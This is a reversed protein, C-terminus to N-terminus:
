SKNTVKYHHSDALIVIEFGQGPLFPFTPCHREEQGWNGMILSNRVIVRELM